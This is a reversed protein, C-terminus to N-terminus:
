IITITFATKENTYLTIDGNDVRQVGFEIQEGQANFTQCLPATGKGHTQATITISWPAASGVWDTAAFTANYREATGPRPLQIEKPEAVRYDVTMKYDQENYTLDTVADRSQVPSFETQTIYEADNEFESVKTPLQIPDSNGNLYNVVLVHTSENYTVSAPIDGTFVVGGLTILRGAYPANATIYLSGDSGKFVTDASTYYGTRESPATETGAEYTESGSQELGAFYKNDAYGTQEPGFALAYGGESQVAWSEATFGLVNLFETKIVPTGGGSGVPFEVEATTGDSYYKVGAGTESNVTFDVLVKMQERNELATVRGSLYGYLELMAQWEDASPESPPLPQVGRQVTFNVSSTAVIQGNYSVKFQATVTGAFQTVLANKTQWEWVSYERGFKDAVGDLEGQSIMDFIGDLESVSTMAYETTNDGNALTFAVSVANIPPFPAVLYLSGELSSGQYVPSPVVKVATGDAKIFIIM